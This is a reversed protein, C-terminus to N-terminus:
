ESDDMPKLYREAIKLFEEIRQEKEEESLEEIDEKEEKTLEEYYSDELIYERFQKENPINKNLINKGNLSDMYLAVNMLVFYEEYGQAEDLDVYKEFFARHGKLLTLTFASSYGREVYYPHLEYMKSFTHHNKNNVYDSYCELRFLCDFLTLEEENESCKIGTNSYGCFCINQLANHYFRLAFKQANQFKELNRINKDKSFSASLFSIAFDFYLLRDDGIREDEAMKLYEVYEVYDDFDTEKKMPQNRLKNKEDEFYKKIGPIVTSELTEYVKKVYKMIQDISISIEKYHNGEANTYVVATLDYNTNKREYQSKWSVYPCCEFDTDVYEKCRNTEFPHVSCLSRIYEFFLKDNGDNNKGRQCFVDYQGSLISMDVHYLRAIEYVCDVLVASHNIMNYVDFVDTNYSSYKIVLSNLYYVTDQIRDMLACVRNWTPFKKTNNKGTLSEENRISLEVEDNIAFRLKEAIKEDLHFVWENKM